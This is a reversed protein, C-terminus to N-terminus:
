AHKTTRSMWSDSWHLALKRGHRYKDMCCQPSHGCGAQLSSKSMIQLDYLLHPILYNIESEAWEIRMTMPISREMMLVTLHDAGLWIIILIDVFSFTEVVTMESTIFSAMNSSSWSSITITLSMSINEMHSCWRTGNVPLTQPQVLQYM